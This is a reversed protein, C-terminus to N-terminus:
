LQIGPGPQSVGELAEKVNEYIDIYRTIGVMKFTRRLHDSLGTIVIRQDRKISDGFLSILIAIGGSTIHNEPSFEIIIKKFGKECSNKYVDRIMKELAITFDTRISIIMVDNEIRTLIPEHEM